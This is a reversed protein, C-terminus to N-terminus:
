RSGAEAELITQKLSATVAPSLEKYQHVLAQTDAGSLFNLNLKEKAAAEVVEPDKGMADFAQRLEALRDGDTDPPAVFSRGLIDGSSITMMIRRDDENRAFEALTPVNPMSARRQLGIQVLLRIKGDSLWSPNQMKIQSFLLAFSGDLEGREIALQQERASYGRVAKIKTGVLKNLFIPYLESGSLAGGIGVTIEKLKLDEISQVGITSWVGLVADIDSIRGLWEFRDSDFLIGPTGLLQMIPVSQGLIGITTGDKPAINYIYNAARLSGAGPMNQVVVRPQGNLHKGLFRAVFRGYM